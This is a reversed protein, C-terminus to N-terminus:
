SECGKQLVRLNAGGKESTQSRVHLLILKIESIFNDSFHRKKYILVVIIDITM